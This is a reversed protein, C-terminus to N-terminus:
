VGKEKKIGGFVKEVNLAIWLSLSAALISRVRVISVALDKLGQLSYVFLPIAIFRNSQHNIAPVFPPRLRALIM